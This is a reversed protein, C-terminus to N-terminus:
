EEEKSSYRMDAALEERPLFPYMDEIPPSVITGDPEARSSLKPEFFQATDLMVEVIVPGDTRLAEDVTAGAEPLATIRFFPLGYAAALKGIDPMGVGNEPSVGVM